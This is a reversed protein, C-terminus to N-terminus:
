WVPTMRVGGASIELVQDVVYYVDFSTNNALTAPAGSNFDPASPVTSVTINFTGTLSSLGDGYASLSDKLSFRFQWGRAVSSGIARAYDFVHMSPVFSLNESDRSRFGLAFLEPDYVSYSIPKSEPINKGAVNFSISRIGMDDSYSLKDVTTGGTVGSIDPNPNNGLVMVSSVSKVIGSDVQMTFSSSNNGQFAQYSVTQIPRQLVGGRQLNEAQHRWFGEAPRTCVVILEVNSWVLNDITDNSPFPEKIDTTLLLELDIGSPILPLELSQMGRLGTQLQHMAYRNGNAAGLFARRNDEAVGNVFHSVGETKALYVKHELPANVVEQSVFRNYNAISEILRGGISMTVTKIAATQGSIAGVAGGGTYTAGGARAVPKWKLYMQNPHIVCETDAIKFNVRSGLGFDTGNNPQFRKIVFHDAFGGSAISNGPLVGSKYEYPTVLSMNSSSINNQEFFPDNTM